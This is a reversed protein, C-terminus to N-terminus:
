NVNRFPKFYFYFSINNVCVQQHQQQHQQQYQQQAQHQQQAQQLNQNNHPNDTCPSGTALTCHRQLFSRKPVLHETFISRFLIIM